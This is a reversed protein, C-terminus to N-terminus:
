IIENVLISAVTSAKMDSTVFAEVWRTAYDTLVLIYKNGNDTVTLPGVFDIGVMDFPKVPHTISFLPIVAKQPKKRSACIDCSAVRISGRRTEHEEM